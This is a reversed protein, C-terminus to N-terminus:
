AMSSPSIWSRGVSPETYKEPNAATGNVASSRMVVLGRQNQAALGADSHRATTTAGSRPRTTAGNVRHLSVMLIFRMIMLLSLAMAGDLEARVAPTVMRLNAPASATM